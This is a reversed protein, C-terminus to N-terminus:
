LESILISKWVSMDAHVKSNTVDADVELSANDAHVELSKM